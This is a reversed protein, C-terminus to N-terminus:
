SGRGQGNFRVTVTGSRDTRWIEGGSAAIREVTEPAPHGYGNDAGVSILAYEPRFADLLAQSTSYKSGHHGAVLVEGDGEQLEEGQVPECEIGPAGEGDLEVAGVAMIKIDTVATCVADSIKRCAKTRLGRYHYIPNNPKFEGQRRKARISTRKEGSEVKDPFATHNMLPM